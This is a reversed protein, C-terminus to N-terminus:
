MISPGSAWARLRDQMWKPSDKIQIGTISIGSYRACAKKNEITIKVPKGRHDIHFAPIAPMKVRFDKKEQNSMYSCVDRAVGMHSMADMHNPTLGIEYIYDTYPHLHDAVAM